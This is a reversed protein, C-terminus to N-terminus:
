SQLLIAQAIVILGAQAAAESHSPRGPSAATKM